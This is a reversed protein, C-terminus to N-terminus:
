RKGPNKILRPGTTVKTAVPLESQLAVGRCIRCARVKRTKRYMKRELALHGIRGGGPSRRRTDVTTGGWGDDIVHVGLDGQPVHAGCAECDEYVNGSADFTMNM